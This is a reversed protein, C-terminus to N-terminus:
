PSLKNPKTSIRLNVMYNQATELTQPPTRPSISGTILELPQVPTFYNLPPFDLLFGGFRLTDLRAWSNAGIGVVLVLELHTLTQVQDQRNRHSHYDFRPTRSYSVKLTIILQVEYFSLDALFMVFQLTYLIDSYETRYVYIRLLRRGSYHM